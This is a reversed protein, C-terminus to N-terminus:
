DVGVGEERSRGRLGGEGERKEGETVFTDDGDNVRDLFKINRLRDEEWAGPEPLASLWQKEKINIKVNKM